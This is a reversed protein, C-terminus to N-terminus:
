ALLLCQEKARLHKDSTWQHCFRTALLTGFGSGDSTRGDAGDEIQGNNGLNQQYGRRVSMLCKGSDEM